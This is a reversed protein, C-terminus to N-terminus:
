VQKRLGIGGFENGAGAGGDEGAQADLRIFLNGEDGVTYRLRNGGGDGGLKGLTTAGEVGKDEFVNGL